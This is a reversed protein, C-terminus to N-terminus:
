KARQNGWLLIQLRPSYNFGHAIIQEVLAPQLQSQISIGELGIYVKQKTIGFKTIIQEVEELDDSTKIIFKFVSWKKTAFYILSQDNLIQGSNSLKPSIVWNFAGIIAANMADRRIITNDALKIELPEVPIISGNTEVHFIKSEVVLEDLRYFAPEGGTFIIHFAKSGAIIQKLEEKSYEKFKGSKELWTYKTDCWICSLNCFHFRIFLSYVGTMNGEGQISEFIESVYYKEDSINV